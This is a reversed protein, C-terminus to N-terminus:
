RETVYTYDKRNAAITLIKKVVKIGDPITRLKSKSNGFRDYYDVPLDIVKMHNLKAVMCMEAELTFGESTLKINEVFHRSFIRLGSMSDYYNTSFLFNILDRVFVNGFNHFPRKNETFYSTSLRDGTVMDYGDLALDFMDRLKNVSYTNDGDIMCYFDSEIESFALAIVNGKGQKPAKRIEMSIDNDHSALLQERFRNAKLFTFDTSNNDYVYICTQIGAFSKKLEKKINELTWPLASEENYVPIIIALKIKDSM